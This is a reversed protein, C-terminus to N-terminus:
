DSMLWLSFYEIQNSEGRSEYLCLTRLGLRAFVGDLFARFTASTWVHAHERRVRCRSVHHALNEPPEMFVHPAASRLFDIYHEDSSEETGIEFDSWLHDFSTEKRNRDFTYRKDPISLVVHGGPRVIRFVEAVASVPNALHELVHNIVVFDFTSPPFQSLGKRDLDGIFDVHVFRTADIEPFLAAAQQESLADFYRAEVGKPLPAPEHLAGIELGSGRLQRYAELRHDLSVM